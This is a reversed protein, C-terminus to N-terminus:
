RLMQVALAPTCNTAFVNQFTLQQKIVNTTNSVDRSRSIFWREEGIGRMLSLEEALSVVNHM